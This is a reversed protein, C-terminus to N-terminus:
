VMLFVRTIMMVTLTLYQLRILGHRKLVEQEQQWFKFNPIIFALSFSVLSKLLFFHNRCYSYYFSSTLNFKDKIFTVQTQFSIGLSLILM